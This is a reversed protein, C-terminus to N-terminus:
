KKSEIVCIITEALEEGIKYKSINPIIIDEIISIDVGFEIMNDTLPVLQSFVINSIKEENEKDVKKNLIGNKEDEKKSNFLEKQISFNVYDEWFKKSKFLDNKIIFNLLYEKNKNKGFIYYTQSLIIINMVSNYDKEKESINLLTNLLKGLINYEKKPIDFIGKTRFESLRQLFITRLYKKEFMKELEEIEDETIDSLSYKNIKNKHEFNLIKLTLYKCRLKKEEVDLNLDNQDLFEFNEAMKKITLFIDVEEIYNMEQFCDENSSSENSSNISNISNNTSNNTSNSSNAYQSDDSKARKFFKPTYKEPISPTFQKNKKYGIIDNFTNIEDLKIIENLYEDIENLPIRFYSKLLILCDCINGKISKLLECCLKRENELSNKSSEIFINEYSKLLNLNNKYEIEAKKAKQISSNISSNNISSTNITNIINDEDTIKNLNTGKYTISSKEKNQKLFYKYINDEAISINSKFNLKIKENEKYKKILESKKENFSNHIESFSNNKEHIFKDFFSIQKDVGKIFYNGNLIQENIIKPIISTIAIIHSFNLSPNKRFEERIESLKPTYKENIITLKKIYENTATKLHTIFKIYKEYLYKLFSYYNDSINLNEDESGLFNM